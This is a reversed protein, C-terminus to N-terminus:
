QTVLHSPVPRIVRRLLSPQLPLCVHSQPRPLANKAQLKSISRLTMKSLYLAYTARLYSGPLQWFTFLARKPSETLLILPPTRNQSRTPSQLIDLTTHASFGPVQLSPWGPAAALANLAVPSVPHPFSASFLTLPRRKRGAKGRIPLVLPEIRSQGRDIM